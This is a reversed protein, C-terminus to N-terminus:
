DANVEGEPQDALMAMVESINQTTAQRKQGQLINLSNQYCFLYCLRDVTDEDFGCQILFEKPNAIRTIGFHLLGGMFLLAFNGLLKATDQGPHHELMCSTTEAFLEIAAKLREDQETM